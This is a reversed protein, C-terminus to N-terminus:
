DATVTVSGMMAPFLEGIDVYLPLSTYELIGVNNFIRTYTGGPEIDGSDFIDGIFIHEFEDVDLWSIWSTVTRSMPSNNVWTVSDGPRITISPPNYSSNEIIIQHTSDGTAPPSSTPAVTVTVTATTTQTTTVAQTVTVAAEGGCAAFFLWLLVLGIVALAKM